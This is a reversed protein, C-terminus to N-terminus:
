CSLLPHTTSSIGRYKDVNPPNTLLLGDDMVDDDNGDSSLLLMGAEEDRRCRVQLFQELDNERIAV